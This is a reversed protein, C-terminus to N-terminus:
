PHCRSCPKYGINILEDRSGTFEKKNKEKMDSVSSCSPYHFKKTNTNMIYDASVLEEAPPNNPPTEVPVTVPQNPIVSPPTPANVEEATRSEGTAYDIEIGPQVNYTFICFCIGDGQDEVSYGEMLVGTALLNDGEFIPTVRYAVHNGTSEVYEATMNEFPLMGEINLYRTGTILNSLNANEASLQYGILHCRNYLYKDAILDDYRVTHWGSPKVMGISGREETPMIDRGICAYAVGCRGLEDLSSYSEVSQASLTAPNFYPVNNNLTTYPKGSYAPVDSIQFADNGGSPQQILNENEATPLSDQVSPVPDSEDAHSPMESGIPPETPAPSEINPSSEGGDSNEQSDSQIPSSVQPLNSQKPAESETLAGISAILLCVALVIAPLLNRKM